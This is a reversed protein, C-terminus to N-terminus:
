GPKEAPALRGDRSVRYRRGRWELQNGLFSVAWIAASLLDKIPVLWFCAYHDRSRNLRSQCNVAMWIRIVLFGAFAAVGPPLSVDFETGSPFGNSALTVSRLEALMWLLPWLTANGLISFFYPLPQCVRITRAWRLQHAWVQRWRKRAERCEVVVPSIVIAGGRRAIRNGLQYDDALHGALAAYGGIAELESRRTALAAGLAFNLPRLSRAQLVQTWFDANIAIAEWQMALGAPNALRYFCNVLSVAPDRFPAVVNALFDAPALVDADSVVLIDHRAHRQLQALTSVKVNSGLTEPCTVLQADRDPHADMVERVLICVPDDNSAVGLLLQVPASYDQCFWSELCDRTDAEAGKLPKLITVPPPFDPHPLRRHLPFRRGVIWQWLTIVFSLVALAGLLANLVM